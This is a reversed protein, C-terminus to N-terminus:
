TLSSNKTNQAASIKNWRPERKIRHMVYYFIGPQPRNAFFYFRYLAEAKFIAYGHIAAGVNQSEAKHGVQHTLSHMAIHRIEVDVPMYIRGIDAYCAAPKAGKSLFRFIRVAVGHRKFLNPFRCAPSIRFGHGFKMNHAAQMGLEREVPVALHDRSQFLTVRHHM